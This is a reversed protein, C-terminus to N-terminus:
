KAEDRKKKFDDIWAREERKSLVVFSMLGDRLVVGDKVGDEIKAAKEIVERLTIGKGVKLLRKGHTEAYVSLNATYYERRQDWDSWAPGDSATATASAPFIAGLQDDFSTDEHFHTILDSQNHSPYLLFVPAVLPHHTPPPFWRPAPAKSSSPATYLPPDAPLGTPDFHLPHPNEPPSTTNVVVLGRAEVARRLAEQGVRERREREAREERRRIGREADERVKVWAMEEKRGDDRELARACLDRAEEWRELKILAQAARYLAKIPVPGAEAATADATCLAIVAGTDKLVAGYNQLLLNAAARNNLLSIRLALSAPKAGLGETYSQAADKYSKQAYLENGHNKHNTAIDDGEGEFVLSQLAELVYDGEINEPTERMFLPISDLTKQFDAMTTPPKDSVANRAALADWMDAEAAEDAADPLLETAAAYLAAADPQESTM